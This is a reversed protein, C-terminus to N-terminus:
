WQLSVKELWQNSGLCADPDTPLPINFNVHGRGLEQSTSASHCASLHLPATGPLSPLAHTTPPPPRQGLFTQPCRPPASPLSTCVYASILLLASSHTPPGVSRPDQFGHSDTERKQFIVDWSAASGPGSCVLTNGAEPGKHQSQRSGRALGEGQEARSWDQSGPTLRLAEGVTELPCGVANVPCSTGARSLRADSEAPSRESDRSAATVAKRWGSTHRPGMEKRIRGRRRSSLRRGLRGRGGYGAQCLADM